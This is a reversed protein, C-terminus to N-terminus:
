SGVTQVVRGHKDYATITPPNKVTSMDAKSVYSLAFWGDNVPVVHAPDTGMKISVTTAESSIRGWGTFNYSKTCPTGPCYSGGGGGGAFLEAPKSGKAPTLVPDSPGLSGLTLIQTSAFNRHEFPYLQCSIAKQGSPSIAVLMTTGLRKSQDVALVRWKTLDMWTQVSCNRLQGATTAPLPDKEAAAVLAQTPKDGGPVLCTGPKQRNKMDYMATRGSEFRTGQLTKGKAEPYRLECRRTAEDKTLKQGAGAEGHPVGPVPEFLSSQTDSGAVQPQDATGLDPLFTVALAVAAVGAIAGGAGFLRRRRRGRRGRAVLAATDFPELAEDEALLHLEGAVTRVDDM